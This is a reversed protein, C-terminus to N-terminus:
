PTEPPASVGISSVWQQPQALFEKVVLSAAALPELAPTLERCQFDAAKLDMRSLVRRVGGAFTACESSDEQADGLLPKPGCLVVRSPDILRVATGLVEGVAEGAERLAAEAQRDGARARTIVETLDSSTRGSETGVRNLIAHEGAVQELCGTSGCRCESDLGPCSIVHGVEGAADHAGRVLSGNLVLGAGIGRGSASFLLLLLGEDHADLLHERYALANADNGVVVRIGQIEDQLRAELPVGTHWISDSSQLDPATVVEGLKGIMGALSVGLGLVEYGLETARRKLQNALYAVTDVVASPSTGPLDFRLPNGVPQQLLLDTLVGVVHDRRLTVGIVLMRRTNLAYRPPEDATEVVWEERMLKTLLAEAVAPPVEARHALDTLTRCPRSRDILRALIRGQGRREILRWVDVVVSEDIVPMAKHLLALDLRRQVANAYRQLTSLRPDTRGRELDSIASQTTGMLKSVQDQSLDSSARARCLEDLLAARRGSSQAAAMSDPNTGVQQRLQDLDDPTGAEIAEIRALLQKRHGAAEDM